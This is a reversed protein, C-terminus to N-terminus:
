LCGLIPEGARATFIIGQNKQVHHHGSHVSEGQQFLQLLLDDGLADRHNQDGAQRICLVFLSMWRFAQYNIKSVFYMAVIGAAAFMAQRIFYHYPGDKWGESVATPFSASFVTIVGIATLMVVLMLFPLDMPGRSLKQEVTLDRKLTPM